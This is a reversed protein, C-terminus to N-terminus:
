FVPDNCDMGDQQDDEAKYNPNCFGLMERIDDPINEKDVHIDDIIDPTYYYDYPILSNVYERQQENHSQDGQNFVGCPTIFSTGWHEGSSSLDLEVLGAYIEGTSRVRIAAPALIFDYSEDLRDTGYIRLFADHLKKLLQKVPEYDHNQYAQKLGLWHFGHLVERNVENLYDKILKESDIGESLEGDGGDNIADTGDLAKQMPILVKLLEERYGMDAIKDIYIGFTNLVFEDLPTTVTLDGDLGASCIFSAVSQINNELRRSRGQAYGLLYPYETIKKM